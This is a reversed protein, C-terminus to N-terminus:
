GVMYYYLNQIAAHKQMHKYKSLEKKYISIYYLFGWGSFQETNNTTVDKIMSIACTKIM